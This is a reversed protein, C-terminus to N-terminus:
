KRPRFIQLHREVFMIQKYNRVGSNTDCTSQWFDKGAIMVSGDKFAVDGLKPRKSPLAEYGCHQAFSEITFNNKLLQKYWEKPSNYPLKIFDITKSKGRLQIDYESLFAFCDNVGRTYVECTKTINNIKKTAIFLAESLETETYYM